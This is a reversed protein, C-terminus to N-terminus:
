ANQQLPVQHLWWCIGWGWGEGGVGSPEGHRVSPPQSYGPKVWIVATVEAPHFGGGEPSCGGKCFILKLIISRLKMRSTPPQM